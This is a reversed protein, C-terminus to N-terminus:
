WLEARNECNSKFVSLNPLATKSSEAILENKASLHIRIQM